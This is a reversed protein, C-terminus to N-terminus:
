VQARSRHGAGAGPYYRFTADELRGGNVLWQPGLAAQQVESLSEYREYPYRLSVFNKGWEKLIALADTSLSSPGIREGAIKLLRNRLDTPLAGLIAEYAHGRSARKKVAVEHLHVSNSGGEPGSARHLLDADDLRQLAERHMLRLRLTSM